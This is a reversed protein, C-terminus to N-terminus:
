KIVWYTGDYILTLIGASFLSGAFVGYGVITKGVSNITITPAGTTNDNKFNVQIQAGAEVTFGSVTYSGKNVADAAANCEIYPLTIPYFNSDIKVLSIKNAV